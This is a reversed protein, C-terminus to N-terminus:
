RQETFQATPDAVELTVHEISAMSTVSILARRGM